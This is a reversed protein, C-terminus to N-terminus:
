MATVCSVCCCICVSLCLLPFRMLITILYWSNSASPVRDHIVCSAWTQGFIVVSRNGLEAPGVDLRCLTMAAGWSKRELSTNSEVACGHRELILRGRELKVHFFLSSFFLPLPTGSFFVGSLVLLRERRETLDKFIERSYLRHQPSFSNKGTLRIDVLM